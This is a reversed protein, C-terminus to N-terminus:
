VTVLNGTTYQTYMHLDLLKGRIYVETVMDQKEVHEVEVQVCPKFYEFKDKTTFTKPPQELPETPLLFLKKETLNEFQKM